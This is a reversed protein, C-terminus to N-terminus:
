LQTKTLTKLEPLTGINDKSPKKGKTEKETKRSNRNTPYYAEM